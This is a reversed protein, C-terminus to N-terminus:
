PYRATGVAFVDSGSSGWVGSLDIAANAPQATWSAGDYHLITNGSGVAFVSSSSAGWVGHLDQTTGSPQASWSTGNFHLVIGGAGVAFVDSSSTGWVAKLANTTGSTQPQWGTSAGAYAVITGGDGVAFVPNGPGASWVANLNSTTGSSEPTWQSGDYRAVLGSDGVVIASNTASTTVANYGGCFSCGRFLSSAWTQGNYHLVTSSLSPPLPDRRVAFADTATNGWV